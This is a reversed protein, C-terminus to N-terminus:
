RPDPVAEKAMLEEPDYTDFFRELMESIVIKPKFEEIIQTNFERNDWVFLSRKFCTGFYERPARGFFSDHFVVATETLPAPNEMSVSIANTNHIDWHLPLNTAPVQPPIVLPPKPIADFCNKESKDVGLMRALDGGSFPKNTFIFDEARLPPLGPANQAVTKLVEQCGVFAGLANWHTDNQLYVPATTKAALLPARLDVIQVTSHERMYKEFQDLKTERNKPTADLLWKPLDEPYINHKDPPIVFYFQIGRAALWDRRKELLKQWSRLQAPTFKATGMYNDVMQMEGYFLWGNQGAFAGKFNAGHDRFLREKWQHSWRILRKRFGFHDNFYHESGALYNQLAPFNWQALRPWPALLRNESPAQTIDVGTFFDVTPLCLLGLFVVIALWEAWSKRPKAQSAPEIM